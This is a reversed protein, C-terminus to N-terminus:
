ESSCRSDSVALKQEQAQMGEEGLVNGKLLVQLPLADSVALKPMPCM